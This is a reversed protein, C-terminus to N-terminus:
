TIEEISRGKAEVGFLSWLTFCVLGFVWFGLIGYLGARHSIESLSIVFPPALTGGIRGIISVIGIATARIYSPYIEMATVYGVCAFSFATLSYLAFPLYFDETLILCLTSLVSLILIGLGTPKRGVKDALLATIIGGILGGVSGMLFILPIQEQSLNLSPALSVPILTIMGYYTTLITFSVSASFLFRWRYRGVLVKFGEALSGEFVPVEVAKVKPRVGAKEEIERVIREAEEYLGRSLLWRPSEPVHRRIYVVLVAIVGGLFFAFRWAIDQPMNKLLVLATLSALISGVNWSAVVIGDVKGRHRSPVFEEIASHIAAFEGGIGAGAIVRLIFASYFDWAFGTLFTGLSYALLTIIFVKKRGYRDALYGFLFSGAIAGILFGSVLLSGQVPSLGLSAKMSGLVNGVIVVEFADLIWTIGLAVLFRTHSGTWPLADLRATIDTEVKRM